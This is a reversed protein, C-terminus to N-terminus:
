GACTVLPIGSSSASGPEPIPVMRYLPRWHSTVGPPLPGTTMVTETWDPGYFPNKILMVYTVPISTRNACIQKVADSVNMDWLRTDGDASGTIVTAGALALLSPAWLGASVTV